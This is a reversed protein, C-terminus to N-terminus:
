RTQLKYIWIKLSVLCKLLDESNESHITGHVTKKNSTKLTVKTEWIMWSVKKSTNTQKNQKSLTAMYDWSAEYEERIWGKPETWNYVCLLEKCECNM